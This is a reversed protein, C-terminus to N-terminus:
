TTTTLGLHILSLQLVRPQQGVAFCDYNQRFFRRVSKSSGTERTWGVTVVSERALLWLLIEGHPIVLEQHRVAAFVLEVARHV